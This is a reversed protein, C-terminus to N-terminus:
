SKLYHTIHLLVPMLAREGRGTCKFVLSIEKKCVPFGIEKRFLYIQKMVINIFLKM